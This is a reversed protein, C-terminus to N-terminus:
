NKRDSNLGYKLAIFHAWVKCVLWPRGTEAYLFAAMEEITRYRAARTELSAREDDAIM